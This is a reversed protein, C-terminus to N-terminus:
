KEYELDARKAILFAEARHARCPDREEVACSHHSHKATECKFNTASSRARNCNGALTVLPWVEKADTAARAKKEDKRIRGQTSEPRLGPALTHAIEAVVVHM